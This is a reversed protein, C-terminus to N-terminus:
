FVDIFSFFISSSTLRQGGTVIYRLKNLRILMSYIYRLDSLLLCLPYETLKM